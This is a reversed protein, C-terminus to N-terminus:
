KAQGPPLPEKFVSKSGKSQPVKKQMYSHALLDEVLTCRTLCALRTVTGGMEGTPRTRVDPSLMLSIIAKCGPIRPLNIAGVVCVIGTSDTIQPKAPFEVVSGHNILNKTMIAQQAGVFDSVPVRFQAAM